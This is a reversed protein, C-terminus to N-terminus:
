VALFYLLIPGTRFVPILLYQVSFSLMLGESFYTRMLFVSFVMEQIHGTSIHKRTKKHQLSHYTNVRRTFVFGLFQLKQCELIHKGVKFHCHTMFAETFFRIFIGYPLKLRLETQRQYLIAPMYVNM